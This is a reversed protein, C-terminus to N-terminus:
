PASSEYSEGKEGEPNPVYDGRRLGLWYLTPSHVHSFAAMGFLVIFVSIVVCAVLLLRWFMEVRRGLILNLVGLYLVVAGFFSIYKWTIGFICLLLTFPLIKPSFSPHLVTLWPSTVV